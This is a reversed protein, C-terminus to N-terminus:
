AEERMKALVEAIETFHRGTKKADIYGGRLRLGFAPDFDFGRICDGDVSTVVFPDEIAGRETNVVEDGVKIEADEQKPRFKNLYACRCSVCPENSEDNPQFECFECSTKGSEADDLGRQYAEQINKVAQNNCEAQAYKYGKDYAENWDKNYELKAKARREQYAEQRIADLDPETYPTLRYGTFLTQGIGCVEMHMFLMHEFSVNEDEVEIIYKKGM